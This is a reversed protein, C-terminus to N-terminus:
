VVPSNPVVVEEIEAPVTVRRIRAPLTLLGLLGGAAAIGACVGFLFPAGASGYLLGGATNGAISGLGTATAQYLTQGTAQLGGPLIEGMTLVMAVTLGGYSLGTLARSAVIGAPTGLVTWSLFAAAYGVAGLTFLGRLGLRAAIRAALLMGPVEFLASVGFSMAVDSAGGGLDVIRLSLFTFSINVAFWVLFTSALIGPLSPQLHFALGTSGLRSTRRTASGPWEGEHAPHAERLPRNDHVFMLVTAMVISSLVFLPSALAYGAVNYAFGVAISVVAFSISAMMRIQGYDRHPDTMSAVSISDSLGLCAGQSLVFLPVVIALVWNPIPAAMVLAMASAMSTAAILARRRGIVYDGLHGWIPGAAFLGAAGLAAVVGVVETGLAHHYLIVAVFPNLIATNAGLALYLIQLRRV